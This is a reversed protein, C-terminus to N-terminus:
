THEINLLIPNKPIGSKYLGDYQINAVVGSWNGKMYKWLAERESRMANITAKFTDENTTECTAVVNIGVRELGVFKFKGTKM